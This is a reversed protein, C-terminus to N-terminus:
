QGARPCAVDAARMAGIQRGCHPCDRLITPRPNDSDTTIPTDPLQPQAFRKRNTSM